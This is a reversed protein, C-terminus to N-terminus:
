EPCSAEKYAKKIEPNELVQFSLYPAGLMKCFREPNNKKIEILANSFKHSYFAEPVHSAISVYAALVKEDHSDLYPELLSCAFKFEKARAFAYALKLANQGSSEKFNYFGKIKDICAQRQEQAGELTDLADMIKFQWEINLGDVLKKDLPTKYLMDIKGQMDAQESKNGATSDLAIKCFLANYNILPNAADLKQIELIGKYEEDDVVKNRLLYYYYIKNMMLGVNKADPAIELKDFSEYSYKKDMVKKAIYDMIRLAQKINGTKVMRNFQVVSFKEEKAGSIDYTVDMVVMAFREKSLSPELEEALGKVHNIKNIAEHKSMKTLYDYKGDEMELQFLGWSDNNIITPNIKNQQMQQLVKVVSEARKHQLKANATSDGEISSYTYIFLGEIIFDPERLANIFPQVDETKFESKNKAFPITFNLLASESRPEFPPNISEATEPVPMMEIPTSEQNVYEMYSRLVTKCVYGDQMVMLNLEYPGTINKPFVGMEVLLTRAKQGKKKPKNINRAVLKDINMPKLMVGKNRLNNDVINYEEKSFQEKQVIDIALADTKKKLLRKLAKLNNYSLYIKGEEVTLGLYLNEFDKFKDCNKCHKPDPELLKKSKKNFPAKMEGRHQAGNNLSQFNGLVLSVYARKEDPDMGCGVGAYTYASNLIVSKEKLNTTWKALITKVIDEPKLQNKGKGLPTVIVIEEGKNSGGAKKINKPTTQRLNKPDASENGAMASSSIESAGQLVDNIELTDIKNELRFKNIGALLLKNFTIYDFGAPVDQQEPNKENKQALSAQAIFVFLLLYFFPRMM